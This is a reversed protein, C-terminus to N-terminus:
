QSYVNKLSGSCPIWNVNEELEQNNRLIHPYIRGDLEITPIEKTSDTYTVRHDNNFVVHAIVNSYHPNKSHGHQSWESAHKHIEVHGYWDVMDIKLHAELFDPGENHNWAGPSIVQVSRGQHDILEIQNFLQFRWVMHLLSETL